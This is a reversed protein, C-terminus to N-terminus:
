QNSFFRCFGFVSCIGPILVSFFVLHKGHAPEATSIFASPPWAIMISIISTMSVGRWTLSSHPLVPKLLVFVTCDATCDATCAPPTHASAEPLRTAARRGGNYLVKYRDYRVVISRVPRMLVHLMGRAGACKGGLMCRDRMRGIHWNCRQVSGNESSYGCRRRRGCSTLM